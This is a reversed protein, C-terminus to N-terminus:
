RSSTPDENQPKHQGEPHNGPARRHASWLPCEGSRHEASFCSSCLHRYNCSTPFKCAGSNWSTCIPPPNGKNAGSRMSASGPSSSAPIDMGWPCQSSQHDLSCCYRCSNSRRSQAMFMKAYLPLNIAAWDIEPKGGAQLRFAQDYARWRDGEFQLYAQLINNAYALFQSAKAPHFALPAATFRHFCMMWTYIDGVTKIQKAATTHTYHCSHCGVCSTPTGIAARLLPAPLFEHLEVFDLSHLAQLLKALLPEGTDCESARPLHVRITPVSGPTVITLGTHIHHGAPKSRLHPHLDGSPSGVLQHSGMGASFRAQLGAFIGSVVWPGGPQGAGWGGGRRSARWGAQM